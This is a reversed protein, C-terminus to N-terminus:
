IDSVMRECTVLEGDFGGESASRDHCCREVGGALEVVVALNLGGGGAMDEAGDIGGGGLRQGVDM